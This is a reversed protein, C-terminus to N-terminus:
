KLLSCVLRCESAMGKGVEGQGWCETKTWFRELRSQLKLALCTFVSQQVNVEGPDGKFRSIM